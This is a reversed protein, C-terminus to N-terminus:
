YLTLEKEFTPFIGPSREVILKRNAIKKDIAKFLNRDAISKKATEYISSVAASGTAALNVVINIGSLGILVWGLKDKLELDLADNLLINVVHSILVISWENFVEMKMDTRLPKYAILYIFNSTSFVLLFQCVFFPFNILSILIYVILIRRAMFLTNYQATMHSSLKVDQYLSGYKWRVKRDNLHDFNHKIMYYSAIPFAIVFCSTLITTITCFNNDPSSIFVM